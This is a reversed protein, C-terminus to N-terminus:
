GRLRDLADAWAQMMKTRPELYKAYNYAGSVKDQKAHALQLEIHEHEFGKEHLYTSAISRWGHGTMRGKYGMRELAKLITNNSMVGNDDTASPFLRESHGTIARLREQLSLSQTSLPVIHLRKMKMREPPVRWVKQKCDIEPWLGGILESTRLFTLSLLEMALRTLATGDYDRMKRLLTPVEGFPISAFHEETTKNLINEPRIGAAPNLVNQDLLGNDMGYEYIQRVIQLNRRAIDRARDGVKKTLDVLEMRTITEPAREGLPALIDSELRAEVNAAYKANKDGKWWEFWKGTLDEFTLRKPQGLEADARGVRKKEKVEKRLAMPDVGNALLQRAQAHQARADALSVDPYKGFAMQKMKGAFRYRWRWLKGGEPTVLLALGGSDPIRYPKTRPTAKQCKLNSLGANATMAGGTTMKRERKAHGCALTTVKQMMRELIVM